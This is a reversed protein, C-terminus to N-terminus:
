SSVPYVINALSTYSEASSESGYNQVYIQGTPLIQVFGFTGENTYTWLIQNHAPRAAPPLVAFQASHDSPDEKLSGLLHVIGNSVWYAPDGTGYQSQSSTWGNILTLKHGTTPAAPFSIAALSTFNDGQSSLVTMSGDPTIM